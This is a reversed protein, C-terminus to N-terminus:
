EAAQFVVVVNTNGDVKLTCTTFTATCADGWRVFRFGDSAEAALQVNRGDLFRRNASGFGPRVEVTGGPLQTVLDTIPTGNLSVVYTETFLLTVDRDRNMLLQCVASEGSCDGTWGHFEVTDIPAAILTVLSGKRYRDNTEQPAQSVEIPGAAMNHVINTVQEGNIDLRYTKEFLATLRVTRDVTLVCTFETSQCTGIWEVFRHDFDPIAKVTLETGQLYKNDPGNPPPSFEIAGNPVSVLSPSVLSGSIDVAFTRRIDPALNKDSDMILRCTADTSECDGAWGAFVSASTLEVRVTVATGDIYRGRPANPEPSVTLTGNAVRVSTTRLANGNLHLLHTFMFEAEVGISRDMVISCRGTGACTEGWGIFMGNEATVVVLTVPTGEQYSGDASPPPNVQITGLEFQTIRDTVQQGNIHLVIKPEPTASPLPQATPTPGGPTPTPTVGQGRVTPVPRPTATATPTRTASRPTPTSREPVVTPTATLPLPTPTPLDKQNVIVFNFRSTENSLNERRVILRVTYSGSRTYTFKPNQERSDVTGNNDFDWVWETPDGESVDTFSVTLPVTGFTPSAELLARPPLDAAFVARITRDGNLTLSKVPNTGGLAGEWHDFTWQSSRARAEIDLVTGTEIQSTVGSPITQDDVIVVGADAPEILINLDSLDIPVPTPTANSTEAGRSAAIATPEGDIPGGRQQILDASSGVGETRITVAFTSLTDVFAGATAEDRDLQTRLLEWKGQEADFHLISVTADPRTGLDAWTARDIKIIVSIPENFEFPPPIPIGNELLTLDFLKIPTLFGEPLARPLQDIPRIAHRLQYRQDVSGSKVQVIVSGDGSVLKSGSSPFVDVTAQSSSGGFFPLNGTFFLGVVVVVAGIGVVLVYPFGGKPVEAEQLIDRSLVKGAGDLIIQERGPEGKFKGAPRYSLQVQYTGGLDDVSIVEWALKKRKLKGYVLKDDRARRIALPGARDSGIVSEEGEVPEQAM